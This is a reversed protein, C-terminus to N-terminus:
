RITNHIENKLNGSFCYQVVKGPQFAFKLEGPSFGAGQFIKKFEERSRYILNWDAVWEMWAASSNNYKDAVNAIVMVGDPKLLKRLNSALRSAPREDLYDFLGLCYILDYTREIEQTIDKKLALRIANKQYFNVRPSNNLLKKAYEISRVDIDYCDFEVQAPLGADLLEKIERAPGSALDMIRVKRGKNNKVFSFIVKKIDEKRGRIAKTASLQQFYNDWLRDFGITRPNNQYIDDIIKFDGAYGFPKDYSWKIFEGFLFHRRYRKEFIRRFKYVKSEYKGYSEQEFKLMDNYLKDLTVNFTDQFKQWDYPSRALLSQLEQSMKLYFRVESFLNFRKAYM